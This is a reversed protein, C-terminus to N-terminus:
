RGDLVERVRTLLDEVSFPKEILNVGEELVGQHVILDQSYGSMFLVKTRPYLKGIEAALEKGSRGPMIVDTLLLAIEGDHERAIGLAEDANSAALANYGYRKLIRHVPERVMPEDEVLLITEGQSTVVSAKPSEREGAPTDHTAPITV